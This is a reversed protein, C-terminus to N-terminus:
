DFMRDQILLPIEYDGKPLNLADEVQDRIFYFGTLGAYVNLRTIGLAHDHYWLSTAPQENPYSYVKREFAPGTQQFGPTFWADPYGDSHPLVKIGHLHVVNRVEPAGMDAGHLKHDVPLFHGPPLNSEWQIDVPTGRRCEITPGPYIGNYGWLKT